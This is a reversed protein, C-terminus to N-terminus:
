PKNSRHAELEDKAQSLKAEYETILRKLRSAKENWVLRKWKPNARVDESSIGLYVKRGDTTELEKLVKKVLKCPYGWETTEKFTKAAAVEDTLARGMKKQIRGMKDTNRVRNTFVLQWVTELKSDDESM